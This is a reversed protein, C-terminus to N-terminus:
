FKLCVQQKIINNYENDLPQQDLSQLSKLCIKLREMASEIEGEFAYLKASIGTNIAFDLLPIKKCM